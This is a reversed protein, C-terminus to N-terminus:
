MNTNPPQPAWQLQAPSQLQTPMVQMPWPTPVVVVQPPVVVSLVPTPFNPTSYNPGGSSGYVPLPIPSYAPAPEYQDNYGQVWGPGTSQAPAVRLRKGYVPFGDMGQVALSASASDAFRVFGYGRPFGRNDRAVRTSLVTGFKEFLQKLEVETVELPVHM